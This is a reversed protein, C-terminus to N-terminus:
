NVILSSKLLIIRDEHDGKMNEKRGQLRDTENTHPGGNVGAQDLVTRALKLLHYTLGAYSGWCVGTIWVNDSTPDYV